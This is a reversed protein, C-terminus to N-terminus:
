YFYISKIIAELEFILDRKSQSPNYVFGDLFLYRNYLEDKFVYSLYPGEMFDNTLDWTGRFEYCEIAEAFFIKKFYPAYGKDVHMYSDKNVGKIYKQTVSDRVQVFNEIFDIKNEMRHIPVQYILLSNSGTSLEKKLWLFNDNVLAYRYQYPMLLSIKYQNQIRKDNFPSAAMDEQVKLLEYFHISSELIEGHLTILQLLDKITPGKFYFVNQPYAYKNEVHIFETEDHQQIIVLNRQLNIQNNVIKPSFQNIKLVPEEKNLGDISHALKARLSDGVDGNWYVDDIIISVENIDGESDPLANKDSTFFTCATLTVLLFFFLFFNAKRM